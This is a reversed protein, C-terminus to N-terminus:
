LINRVLTQITMNSELQQLSKEAIEHIHVEGRDKKPERNRQAGKRIAGKNIEKERIGQQALRCEPQSKGDVALSVMVVLTM